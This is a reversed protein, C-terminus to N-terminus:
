PQETNFAQRYPEALEPREWAKYLTVLRARTELLQPDAEGRKKLIEHSQKLLAEAQEYHGLQSLCQGLDSQVLAIRWHDDQEFYQERLTLAEEFLPRAAAPRCRLARRPSRRRFLRRPRARGNIRIM